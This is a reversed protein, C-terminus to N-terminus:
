LWGREAFSAVEGDGVVFHDLVRIDVLALADQLRRTLRRDADSPEAVGSPHNHAFILAAANHKLAARVVERPHVSTGDITGRFLEEFAIVRHRNDLYLCAFVEHPMDRLKALLYKRTAAPDTLPKGRELAEGLHRRAMELCAQLQAYKAPGLGLTACFDEQSANLLARLGGFDSLLQRALDVASKGKVGTRLFIALLEAESLSAAGQQLLKERPREGAPWDRIAM